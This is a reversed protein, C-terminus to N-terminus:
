FPQQTLFRRLMDLAQIPKYQPVMHGAGKVTAFTFNNLQYTTAYGAVQDNITWAHWPTQVPIGLNSTWEQNDTVPVCADADGNFILVRYKRILTPYLGLLSQINTDYVIKGTCITWKGTQSVPPMNIAKRVTDDNLYLGASIGDICENPGGLLSSLAQTRQSPVRYVRQDPDPDGIICKDYIDYINVNGVQVGRALLLELCQLGPKAPDPCAKLLQTHLATSYLAHGWLFKINVDNQGTPSCVGVGNGTCGNGVLFGQLNISSQGADNHIMIQEAFM